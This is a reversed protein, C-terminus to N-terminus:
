LHTWEVLNEQLLMEERDFFDTTQHLSLSVDIVFAVIKLLVPIDNFRVLKGYM